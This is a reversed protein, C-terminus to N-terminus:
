PMSDVRIMGRMRPHITCQYRYEGTDAPVWLFSEGSRLEGTDFTERRVANHRVVDANKFLVTDGILVSLERPTFSIAKMQIERRAGRSDSQRAAAGWAVGSGLLAMTLVRRM